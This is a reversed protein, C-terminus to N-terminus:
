SAHQYYLLWMIEEEKGLWVKALLELVGLCCFLKPARPLAEPLVLRLAPNSGVPCQLSVMPTQVMWSCTSVVEEFVSSALSTLHVCM